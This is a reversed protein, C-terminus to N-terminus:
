QKKRNQLDFCSSPTADFPCFKRTIGSPFINRNTFEM